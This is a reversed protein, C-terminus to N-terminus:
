GLHARSLSWNYSKSFVTITAPPSSLTVGCENYVLCRAQQTSQVGKLVLKTSSHDLITWSHTNNSRTAWRHVLPKIGSGECRVTVSTNFAVLQSVPPILIRPPGLHCSFKMVDRAIHIQSFGGNLCM